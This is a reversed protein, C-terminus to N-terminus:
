KTYDALSQMVNGVTDLAKAAKKRMMKATKPRASYITVASVASGVVVGAIVGKATRKTAKTM